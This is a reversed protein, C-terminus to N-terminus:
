SNTIAGVMATVVPLRVVSTETAYGIPSRISITTPDRSSSPAPGGDIARADSPAYRPSV